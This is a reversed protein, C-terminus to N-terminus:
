GPQSDLYNQLILAAALRDVKARRKQRSLDAELLLREAAASTLREDLYVVERQLQTRISEGLERALRASEGESGNLHRPLGIVIREVQYRQCLERLQALVDGRADVNGVPQALTGTLDSVAVGIRVSGYDLAMLRSM